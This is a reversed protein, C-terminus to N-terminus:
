QRDGIEVNFTGSKGTISQGDSARTAEFAFTGKLRMTSISTFTVTGAITAVFAQDQSAGFDRFTINVLRGNGVIYTRTEIDGEFLITLEDALATMGTIELIPLGNVRDTVATVNIAAWSKGQLIMIMTSPIVSEEEEELEGMPDEVVMATDTSDCAGILLLGSCLLLITCTQRM